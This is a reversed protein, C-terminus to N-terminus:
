RKRWVTFRNVIWNEDLIEM